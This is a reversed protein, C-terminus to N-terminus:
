TICLPSIPISDFGWMKFTLSLSTWTKSNHQVPNKIKETCRSSPFEQKHILAMRSVHESADANGRFGHEPSFVRQVDMGSNQLSDVLHTYRTQLKNKFIVSTQNAVIGIKKSHLLPFYEKTANAGVEIPATQCSAFFCATLFFASLFFTRKNKLTFLLQWSDIVSFIYTNKVQLM